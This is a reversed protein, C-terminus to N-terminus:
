VQNIGSLTEVIGPFGLLCNKMMLATIYRAKPIKEEPVDQGRVEVARM